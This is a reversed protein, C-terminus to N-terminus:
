KIKQLKAITTRSVWNNLNFYETLFEPHSQFILEAESPYCPECDSRKIESYLFVRQGKHETMEEISNVEYIELHNKPKYFFFPMHRDYPNSNIVYLVDGNRANDYLWNRAKVFSKSSYFMVGYLMIGGLVVHVFVGLPFVVKKIRPLMELIQSVAFAVYFPVFYIVPYMFRMEKHGIFFHFVVFPLVMFLFASKQKKVSHVCIGLLLVLGYVVYTKNLMDGFYHYWPSVGFSSVKDEMLNVSFYNYPAFVFEGYFVTDLSTSLVLVILFGLLLEAISKFNSKKVFVLWVLFGLSMIATQYRMQFSLGAFVGAMICLFMSDKKDSRDWELFALVIFLASWTESSFRVSVYIFFWLTGYAVYLLLQNLKYEQHTYDILRKIVYFSFVATILRMVTAWVFPSEVGFFMSIKIVLAAFYPQLSPRIQAAFEWCLQDDFSFGLIYNAFELLQYHEDGRHFGVSFCATILLISLLILDLISKYKKQTQTIQM